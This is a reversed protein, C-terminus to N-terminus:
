SELLAAYEKLSIARSFDRNKQIRRAAAGLVFHHNWRGHDSGETSNPGLTRGFESATFLTVRDCMGARDIKEFCEGIAGDVRELARDQLELQAGHTDFGSFRLTPWGGIAGDWEECGAGHSLCGSEVNAVVAGRGEEILRAVSKLRPHLGYDEDGVRVRLLSREALALGRRARRYEDYKRLRVITNHGDNGGELFVCVLMRGGGVGALVPAACMWKLLERRSLM